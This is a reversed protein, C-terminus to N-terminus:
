GGLVAGRIAAVNGLMMDIYTPAPGDEFVHGLHAGCEKCLVEVRQRGESNDDATNVSQPDVPRYFSPWGTGSDYKTESSFLAAGCCACRYTGEKDCKYYEGTFPLETGKRRAVEYQEPTLCTQWQQDTKRTPEPKKSM